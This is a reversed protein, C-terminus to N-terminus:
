LLSEGGMRLKKMSSFMWREMRKMYRLFTDQGQKPNPEESNQVKIEEGAWRPLEKAM